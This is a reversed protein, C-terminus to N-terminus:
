DEPEDNNTPNQAIFRAFVTNLLNEDEISAYVEGEETQTVKLILVDDEDEDQSEDVDLPFLVLYDSDEITVVDLVIFDTDQGNEDTLTVLSDDNLELM